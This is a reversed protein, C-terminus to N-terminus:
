WDGLCHRSRGGPFARASRRRVPQPGSVERPRRPSAHSFPLARVREVVTAQHRIRRSSLASGRPASGCRGAPFIREPVLAQLPTQVDGLGVAERSLDADLSRDIRPFARASRRRYGGRERGPRAPGACSFHAVAVRDGTEVPLLARAGGADLCPNAKRSRGCFVDTFGLIM